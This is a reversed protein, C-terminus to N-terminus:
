RTVQTMQALTQRLALAQRLLDIAAAQKKGQTGAEWAAEMEGLLKHLEEIGYGRYRAAATRLTRQCRHPAGPFHAYPNPTPTPTTQSM